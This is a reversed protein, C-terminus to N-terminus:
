KTRTLAQKLLLHLACIKGKVDKGALLKSLQEIMAENFVINHLVEEHCTYCFDLTADTDILGFSMKIENSDKFYKNFRKPFLHHRSIHAEYGKKGYKNDKNKEILKIGCIACKKMGLAYVKM